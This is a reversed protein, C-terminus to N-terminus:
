VSLLRLRWTSLRGAGESHGIIAVRELDLADLVETLWDSCDKPTKLKRTPVSRGMQDIVDPAYVRFHRSLPEINPYWQHIVQARLGLGHPLRTFGVYILQALVPKVPVETARALACPPMTLLWPPQVKPRKPDLHVSM